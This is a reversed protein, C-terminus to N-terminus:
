SRTQLLIKMWTKMSFLHTVSTTENYIEELRKRIHADHRATAILKNALWPWKLLLEAKKYASYRPRLARLHAFYTEAVASRGQHRKEIIAEAAFMATEMAKGIGEGTLPYTAGICEGVALLGGDACRTGDLGNRLPAGKLPGLIEGDRMLDKAMPVTAIFQEYDRRVNGHKRVSGFYGIGINFVADPGPFIWGYGGKVTHDFMFALVDFDKALRPNRVYQRVAFSNPDRQISLGAREIPTPHAGTALLVWTAQTAFVKEDHTFEVRYNKGDQDIVRLFDHGPAFQAGTEIAANLLLADLKLRPVCASRGPLTLEAGNFSILHLGTTTFSINAVRERLGLKQLAQHADPILADGCIKDRPFQAKDFLGVSLGGNRLVIAAACGAPGAGIIIVDFHLM